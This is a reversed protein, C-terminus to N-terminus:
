LYFHPTERSSSIWGYGRLFRFMGTDLHGIPVIIPGANNSPFCTCWAGAYCAPLMTLSQKLPRRARAPPRADGLLTRGSIQSRDFAFIVKRKFQAQVPEDQAQNLFWRGVILLHMHRERSMPVMPLKHYIYVRLCHHALCPRRKTHRVIIEKIPIKEEVRAADKEQPWKVFYILYTTFIITRRTHTYLTDYLRIPLVVDM